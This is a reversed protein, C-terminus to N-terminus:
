GSVQTKYGRDNVMAAIRNLEDVPIKHLETNGPTDRAITYIMVKSPKITDIAKLWCSLEEDTTNDISRGPVNGRLFLTQVILKGNFDALNRVLQEVDIDKVPRNINMITNRVASDLKLINLDVKLLAKKIDPEAAKVANSLVSIKTSPFYKDRLSITDDIIGQFDPNLTPEGNGAFTIVDPAHGENKMDSLKQNLAIAVDQRKPLQFSKCTKYDTFGCECYICNFNCVKATVPLLNIGLSTGLRRSQVPGFIIKDFLFTPM